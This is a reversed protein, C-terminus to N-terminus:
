SGVQEEMELELDKKLRQLNKLSKSQWPYTHNGRVLVASAALKRVRIIFKSLTNIGSSNLFRLQRLDLTIKLPRADAVGNLLDIIPAYESGQLRFSGTCTITASAADYNVQYDDAKIEM